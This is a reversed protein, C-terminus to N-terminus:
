TRKPTKKSFGWFRGSAVTNFTTIFSQYVSIFMVYGQKHYRMIQSQLLKKLNNLSKTTV